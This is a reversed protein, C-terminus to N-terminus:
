NLTIEKIFDTLEDIKKNKKKNKKTLKNVENDKIDLLKQTNEIINQHYELIYKNYYKHIKELTLYNDAYIKTNKSRLLCIKFAYPTLKYIKNYKIYNTSNISKTSNISYEDINNKYSNQPKYEIIFDINEKLELTNLYEKIETSKGSSIIKYKKLKYHDVIFKDDKDYIELFYEIFSNNIYNYFEKHIEKFYDIVNIYIMDKILKTNYLSIDM